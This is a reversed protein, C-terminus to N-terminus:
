PSPITCIALAYPGCAHTEQYILYHYRQKQLNSQIHLWPCFTKPFIHFEFLIKYKKSTYFKTTSKKLNEQCIRIAESLSNINGTLAFTLNQKVQLMQLGWRLKTFKCLSKVLKVSVIWSKEIKQFWWIFGLVPKKSICGWRTCLDKILM